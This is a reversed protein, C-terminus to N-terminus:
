MTPRDAERNWVIQGPHRFELAKDTGHPCENRVVGNWVTFPRNAGIVVVVKQSLPAVWIAAHRVSDEAGLKANRDLALKISDKTVATKKM